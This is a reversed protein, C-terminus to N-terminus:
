SEPAVDVSVKMGHNGSGHFVGLIPSVDSFDSNRACSSYPRQLCRIRQDSQNRVLQEDAGCWVSVWAHSADASILRPLGPPPITRLYGSVYAAPIGLGRLGAIMIHAFDQCVGSRQQFAQKLPTSIDTTDPMYAFDRKIRAAFDRAGDAIPRGSPFSERAYDTVDEDLTVHHSQFIFHIPAEPGISTVALASEAVKAWDDTSNPPPGPPRIVELRTQAEIRLNVLPTEIHCAHRRQRFIVTLTLRARNRRSSSNIRWVIRVTDM